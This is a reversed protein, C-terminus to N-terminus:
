TKNHLGCGIVAVSSTPGKEISAIDHFPKVIPITEVKTQLRSMLSRPPNESPNWEMISNVSEADVPSDLFVASAQTRQRQNTNNSM